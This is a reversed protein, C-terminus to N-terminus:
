HEVKELYKGYDFEPSNHPTHCGTCTKESVLGYPAAEDSPPHPAGPSGAGAGRGRRRTERDGAPEKGAEEDRLSAYHRVHDGGPGHCAECQVHKFQPTGRPTIFGTRFRFGTTHCSQCDPDFDRKKAEITDFAHAHSTTRWQAYQEEHCQLCARHSVYNSAPEKLDEARPRFATSAVMIKLRDIYETLLALVNPDDEIEPAMPSMEHGFGIVRKKEDLLLNLRGMFRGRNRTYALITGNREEHFPPMVEVHAGIIVDIGPCSDALARARNIAGVHALVVVIDSRERVEPLVARLSEEMNLIRLSDTVSKPMIARHNLVGVVAVRVGDLEKIFHEVSGRLADGGRRKAGPGATTDANARVINVTTVPLDFRSILRELYSPGFFLDTEGFTVADYAMIRYARALIEAKLEGQMDNVAPLIDGADVLLV